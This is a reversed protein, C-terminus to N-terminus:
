PAKADNGGGATAAKATRLMQQIEEQEARAEDGGQGREALEEYHVLASRYAGRKRYWRALELRNVFDDPNTKLLANKKRVYSVDQLVLRHEILTKEAKEALGLARYTRGLYFLADPNDPTTQLSKELQRQAKPYDKREYYARGLLLDISPRLSNDAPLRQILAEAEELVQVAETIHKEDKTGALLVEGLYMRGEIINPFRERLERAAAEAETLNKMEINAHYLGM